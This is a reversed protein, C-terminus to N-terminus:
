GVTRVAWRLRLKLCVTGSEWSYGKKNRDSWKGLKKWKSFIAMVLYLIIFHYDRPYIKDKLTTASISGQSGPRSRELQVLKLLNELRGLDKTQWRYFPFLVRWSYHQGSSITLDFTLHHTCLAQCISLVRSVTVIILLLLLTTITTTTM